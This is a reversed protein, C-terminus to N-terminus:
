LSRRRRRNSAVLTGATLVSLALTTPEPILRIDFIYAGGTGPFRSDAFRAGVLAQARNHQTADIAVDWGFLDDETGDNAVIKTLQTGSSVDFLYASGSQSGRDDDEIASILAIGGDMAVQLGFNDFPAGDDALFQALQAGSNADFLYAVGTFVGDPNRGRAGVLVLDEEVAVSIGFQGRGFDDEPILKLRQSGTTADFVYVSGKGDDDLYAGVVAHNADIAVSQGFQDGAAGDSATLKHLQQGTDTDFLYASGSDREPREGPQPNDDKRAGVLALSGDIAVSQGFEEGGQESDPVLKHLEAGTTTNFLYAAGVTNGNLVTNPAGILALPGDDARGGLAISTGFRNGAVGDSAEIEFLEVGTAVEFLYTSGAGSDGDGSGELSSVIALGEKVAVSYGFQDFESADAPTVKRSSADAAVFGLASNSLIVCTVCTAAIAKLSERSRNM